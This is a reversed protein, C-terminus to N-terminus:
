QSPREPQVINRTDVSGTTSIFVLTIQQPYLHGTHLASLRVVKM